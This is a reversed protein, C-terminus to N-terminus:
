KIECTNKYKEEITEGLMESKSFYSCSKEYEGLLYYNVGINYYLWGNEDGLEEALLLYKLSENIKGIKLLASGLNYCEKVKRIKPSSSTNLQFEKELIYISNDIGLKEKIHSIYSRVAGLEEGHDIIKFYNELNNNLQDISKSYISDIQLYNWKNSNLILDLTRREIEYLDYYMNLFCLSNENGKLYYFSNQVDILVKSYYTKEKNSENVDLYIQASFNFLENKSQFDHYETSIKFDYGKNILGLSVRNKSWPINRQNFYKHGDFISYDELKYNTTYFYENNVLSDGNVILTNNDWFIQNYPLETILDYDTSNTNFNYKPLIFQKNYDYFLFVGKSNIKNVEELQTYNYSQNYELKELKNKSFAYKLEIKLSDIKDNENIPYLLNQHVVNKSFAISQFSTDKENITVITNFYKENENKLQISILYNDGIKRLLFLNFKRKLKRKNLSLPSLPMITKVKNLYNYNYFVTPINLSTFLFDEKLAIRGAKLKKEKFYKHHNSNYYAELMENSVENMYSKHLLYSKSVCNNSGEEIIKNKAFEVIKYLDLKETTVILEPLIIDMSKLAIKNNSPIGKVSIKLSHYNTHRILLSDTYKAEILFYGLENTYVGKNLNLNYVSAFEVPENVENIIQCRIKQADVTSIKSIFILFLILKITKM